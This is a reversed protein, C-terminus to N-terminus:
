RRPSAGPLERRSLSREGPPEGAIRGPSEQPPLPIVLDPPSALEELETGQGHETAVVLNALVQLGDEHLHDRLQLLLRLLLCGEVRSTVAGLSVWLGTSGTVAARSARVFM